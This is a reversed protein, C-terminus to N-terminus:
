TVEIQLKQNMGISNKSEAQGVFVTPKIMPAHSQLMRQIEEASDRYQAFVIVRTDLGQEAYSTFHNLIIGITRDIKPHSVFQRNGVLRQSELLLKQFEASNCVEKRLKGKSQAGEDKMGVISNYFPRIGHIQLLNLAHALTVLIGFVNSYYMRLGINMSQAAPSRSFKQRAQVVAYQTLSAADRLHHDNVNKLKDLQIKIISTLMAMLKVIEESLEVTIPVIERTHVYQFIDISQETRAEIIEVCLNTIIDQVTSVDGGPTASLSLIRLSKNQQRILKILEVYAYTGRARHAEDVVVCVISLPDVVKNQLDNQFTQPTMFFVRRTAWALRRTEANQQGTLRATDSPPIGCIRYCAEVQQAVLPKTPAVFVIKSEPAWRYWNFMVVAAIFTKGLGTPLSVLVNHLLAKQCASYQYDRQAMQAPYIWTTAAELDLKHHTPPENEVVRRPPRHTITEGPGIFNGHLDKQRLVGLSKPLPRPKSTPPAEGDSLEIVDQKEALTTDVNEPAKRLEAEKIAADEVAVLEEPWEDVSSGYNTEPSAM